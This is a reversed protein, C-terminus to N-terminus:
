SAIRQEQALYGLESEICIEDPLWREIEHIKALHRAVAHFDDILLTSDAQTHIALCKGCRSIVAWLTAIGGAENISVIHLFSDGDVVGQRVIGSLKKPCFQDIETVTADKLDICTHLPSVVPRPGIKKEKIAKRLAPEYIGLELIESQASECNHM